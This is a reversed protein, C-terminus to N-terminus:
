EEYIGYAELCSKGIQYLLSLSARKVAAPVTKLRGSGHAASATLFGDSEFTFYGNYGSQILGQLISDMDINGFFPAIHEDRVGMNDHIHVCTLNKGLGTLETCPDTGRMHGHGVDWCCGLLPHNMYDVFDNMDEATMYFYRRGMNGEASNEICVKVNWKEAEELLACYFPRNARFYGEKDDPYLYDETIGSHVVIAGIGLMGCAEVSRLSAKMGAEHYSSDGPNGLPNYNPSHAQVFKMGLSAATSGANDVQTKWAETLFPHNGRLVNYFSYDLYRFGTGEYLRVASVPDQDTYAYVEGITTAIKM